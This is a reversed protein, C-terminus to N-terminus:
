KSALGIILSLIAIRMNAKKDERAKLVDSDDSANFYIKINIQLLQIFSFDSFKSMKLHIEFSIFFLSLFLVNQKNSLNKEKLFHFYLM